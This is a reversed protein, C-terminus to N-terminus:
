TDDTSKDQDSDFQRDYGNQRRMDVQRENHNESIFLLVRSTIGFGGVMLAVCCPPNM